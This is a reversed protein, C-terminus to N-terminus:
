KTLSYGVLYINYNTHEIKQQFIDNADLAIAAFTHHVPLYYDHSQGNGRLAFDYWDNDSPDIELLAMNANNGGLEATIDVSVYNGLSSTSYDKANTFFVAGGTVYGQLYLEVNMDEIYLESTEAGDVGVIAMGCMTRRIDTIRNDTSGKKRLAYSRVGGSDNCVTFIAGIAKRGGTDASIDVATWGPSSPSKNIRNTFFSVSGMTYGVLYVRVNKSQSYVQFMRGGDVGTALWGQFGKSAGNNQWPDQSGKKRIAFDYDNGTPNVFQVIVGTAAAPVHPSANVDVWVEEASPSVDVPQQLYNFSDSREPGSPVATFTSTPNEV